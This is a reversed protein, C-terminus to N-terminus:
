KDGWKSLWQFLKEQYPNLPSVKEYTYKIIEKAEELATRLDEYSKRLDVVGQYSMSWGYDGSHALNDGSVCGQAAVGCGALRVRTQELNARLDANEEIMKLLDDRLDTVTQECYNGGAIWENTMPLQSKLSNAYMWGFEDERDDLASMEEKRGPCIDCDRPKNEDWENLLCM